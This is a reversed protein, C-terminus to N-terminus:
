RNTDKKSNFIITVALALLAFGVGVLCVGTWGGYNWAMGASLTGLSGGVFLVSLIIISRLQIRKSASTILRTIYRKM